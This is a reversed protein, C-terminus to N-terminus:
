EFESWKALTLFFILVSPIVNLFLELYGKIDSVLWGAGNFMLALFVPVVAFITFLWFGWRQSRLIGLAGILRVGPIFAGLIAILLNGGSALLGILLLILALLGNLGIAVWLSITLTWGLEPEEMKPLKILPVVKFQSATDKAATKVRTAVAERSEVPAVAAPPKGGTRACRPCEQQFADMVYGCQPCDM